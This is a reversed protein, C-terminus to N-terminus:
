FLRIYPRHALPSFPWPIAILIIILAIIYFTFMTKHKELDTTIRKSKSSGITIIAIAILMLFVHIVGFFAYENWKKIGNKLFYKVTPSQTYLIIGIMLQIHAITATWHRISNVKKSFHLRKTKGKFSLFIAYFLIFLLFWKFLSHLFLLAIYM